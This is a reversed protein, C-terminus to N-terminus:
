LHFGTMHLRNRAIMLKNPFTNRQFAFYLNGAIKQKNTQKWAQFFFIRERHRVCGLPLSTQRIKNHGRLKIHCHQMEASLNSRCLSMITRAFSLCLANIQVILVLREETQLKTGETLTCGLYWGLHKLTKKYVRIFDDTITISAQLSISSTLNMKGSKLNKYHLDMQSLKVPVVKYDTSSILMRQAYRVRKLQKSYPLHQYM